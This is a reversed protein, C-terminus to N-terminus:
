STEPKNFSYNLFFSLPCLEIGTVPRLPGYRLSVDAWIATLKDAKRMKVGCSSEQYENRNSAWDVGPGLTAQLTLILLHKYPYGCSFGASNGHTWSDSAINVVLQKRTNKLCEMCLRLPSLWKGAVAGPETVSRSPCSLRCDFETLSIQKVFWSKTQFIRFTSATSYLHWKGRSAQRSNWIRSCIYRGTFVAARQKELYQKLLTIECRYGGVWGMPYCDCKSKMQIPVCFPLCSNIIPKSEAGTEICRSHICRQRRKPPVHFRWRWHLLGSNRDVIVLMESFINQTWNLEFAWVNPPLRRHKRSTYQIWRCNLLLTAVNRFFHSKGDEPFFVNTQYIPVFTESSNSVEM